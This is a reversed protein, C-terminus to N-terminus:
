DMITNKNLANKLNWGAKIRYRLTSPNIGIIKSWETISHTKQNFTILMNRRTNNCQERTTAWRCNKKSYDGNVDIRDISTNREGYKKVHETYSDYMDRYFSEFTDWLNKIGRGGYNKHYNDNKNICRYRISCYIRFFRNKSMGHTTQKEIRYCGCSKSIGRTLNGSYVSVKKGCICRCQWYSKNKTCRKKVFWRGFTMGTLDRLSHSAMFGSTQETSTAGEIFQPGM